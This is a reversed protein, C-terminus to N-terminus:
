QSDARDKDEIQEGSRQRRVREVDDPHFFKREQKGLRQIMTPKLENREVMAYLTPSSVNLADMTQQWSLLGETAM